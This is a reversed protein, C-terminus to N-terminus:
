VNIYPEAGVRRCFDIFEDTGFRNTELPGYEPGLLSWPMNDRKPREDVPGVGDMWHYNDSFCGGPWRIVTPKLGMISSIVKENLANKETDWIGGYICRGLHEIFHGYIRPDVEGLIKVPFVSISARSM